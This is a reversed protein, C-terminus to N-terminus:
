PIGEAIVELNVEWEGRWFGFGVDNSLDNWGVLTILDFEKHGKRHEHIIREVEGRLGGHADSENNGVVAGELRARDVKTRCDISIASTVGQHGWGLSKAEVDQTGADGVIIYDSVDVNYRQHDESAEKIINPKPVDVDREPISETWNEELLQRVYEEGTRAM